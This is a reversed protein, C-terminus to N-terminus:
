EEDDANIQTGDLNIGHVEALWDECEFWLWDNLETEGIYEGFCDEIYNDVIEIAEGDLEFLVREGGDWADFEKISDVSTTINIM